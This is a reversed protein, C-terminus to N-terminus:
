ILFVLAMTIWFSFCDCSIFFRRLFFQLVYDWCLGFGNPYWEKKCEPNLIAGWIFFLCSNEM